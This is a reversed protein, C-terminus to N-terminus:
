THSEADSIVAGLCSEASSVVACIGAPCSYGTAEQATCTKSRHRASILRNRLKWCICEAGVWAHECARTCCVCVHVRVFVSVCVCARLGLDGLLQVHAGEQGAGGGGIGCSRGSCGCASVGGAGRM